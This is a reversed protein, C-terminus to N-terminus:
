RSTTEQCTVSSGVGYLVVDRPASRWEFRGEQDTLVRFRLSRHGRWKDAAVYAGAIAKGEVDVVKGRLLSGPETLQFEVTATREQVRVDRFQPEFGEAEITVLTSGSTCNELSFEGRENTMGTPASPVLHDYGMFARADKVPRGAADVVRGTVTLGKTLISVSELNHSVMGGGMRYHPHEINMGVAALNRPAVDLRWRGQADTTLEGLAFSNNAGECETPPALVRVTAGAIPHGAEDKVIGGIPTGREFRLEKAAPLELPHRKDDWLLYVPVLNPMRATIEFYRACVDPPYEITAQGDNGTTVSGKENKGDPRTRRYSISVGEIPLGTEAAVARLTLRGAPKEDMLKAAAGAKPAAAVHEAPTFGFGGIFVPLVISALQAALNWALDQNRAHALEHALIARLEETRALACEREPLLLVPRWLGALCPSAVESTRRVRVTRRCRLRAAIARCERIVPARGEVSVRYRVIPPLSSLVAVLALGVVASRWLAVRWRPNRRALKAHALWALGLVATWKFTLVLGSSLNLLGASLEGCLSSFLSM